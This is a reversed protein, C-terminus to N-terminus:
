SGSGGSSGGQRHGGQRHDSPSSEAGPRHGGPQSGGNGGEAVKVKDGDQLKDFSSNAIVDGPSIGDVQTMGNDVVGPKITRQHVVEDQVVYVFSTQGNQQITASPILTVGQLTQVLLRTNVFQNPFLRLDENPFSARIKLTGTTTDIQNDLALLEGTAIKTQASRDFADVGLKAGKALQEQVGGLNDESITFIVTIPQLQTVVVLPTASSGATVLNGPDVLRLGVRGDFPAKIHCYDVQVQDYQVAGQDNKVQGEDQKVLKQQDNLIQQSVANRAYAAQYRASDIEDKSQAAQDKELTGQAQLLTAVYQRDDLDILPDGKKVLQGEQFHVDVVNGTVQNVISATYVPTVTGIAELYVGIDGKTATVPVVTVPGMQHHGGEAPPPAKHTSVLYFAVGFVTLVACWVLVRVFRSGGNGTSTGAAPKSTTPVTTAAM